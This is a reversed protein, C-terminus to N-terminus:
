ARTTTILGQSVPGSSSLAHQRKWREYFDEIGKEECCIKLFNCHSQGFGGWCLSGRHLVADDNAFKNVKCKGM